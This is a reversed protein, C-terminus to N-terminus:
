WSASPTSTTTPTGGPTPGRTSGTSRSARWSTNFPDLDQFGGDHGAAPSTATVSGAPVVGNPYSERKYLSSTGVLGFPTGEPLPRSSATMRWPALRKPETSATSAATPSWPVLGSSTTIAPREQDAADPRARRDAQRGQHPLPGCRGGPRARHLRRQGPGAVLRDAPPQGACGSPHTVKGVRPGYRDGSYPSIPRGKM